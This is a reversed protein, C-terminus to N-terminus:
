GMVAFRRTIEKTERDYGPVHHIVLVGGRGGRDMPRAAYAEIEDNDAGQIGVTDALVADYRV